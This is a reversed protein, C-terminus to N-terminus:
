KRSPNHANSEPQIVALILDSLASEIEDRTQRYTDIQGGYPDMVDQDPRGPNFQHLTYIKKDAQASSQLILDKHAQTLAIIADADEIMSPSLLRARHASLDMNREKLVQIAGESAPAGDTAFLGASAFEWGPVSRCLHRILHEAMVSRCTNGTCVFLLKRIKADSM